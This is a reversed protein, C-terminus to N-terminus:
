KLKANVESTFINVQDDDWDELEDEDKISFCHKGFTIIEFVVEKRGGNATVLNQIFRGAEAFFVKAAKDPKSNTGVGALIVVSTLNTCDMLMTMSAMATGKVWNGITVRCMAKRVEDGASSMFQLLSMTNDFKLRFGYLIQRAEAASEKNLITIALRHKFEKAYDKAKIAGSKEVIDIKNLLVGDANKPALNYRLIRGRIDKPLKMFQFPAAPKIIIAQCGNDLMYSAVLEFPQAASLKVTQGFGGGKAKPLPTALVSDNEYTVDVPGAGSAPTALKNAVKPTGRKRPTKTKTAPTSPAQNEDGSEADPTTPAPEAAPKAAKTAAKTTVAKKSGKPPM